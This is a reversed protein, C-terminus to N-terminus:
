DMKSKPNLFSFVVCKMEQMEGEQCRVGAQRLGSPSPPVGSVRTM